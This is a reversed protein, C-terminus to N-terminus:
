ARITDTEPTIQKKPVGPLTLESKMPHLNQMEEWIIRQKESTLLFSEPNELLFM